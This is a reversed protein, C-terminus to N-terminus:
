TTKYAVDACSGPVSGEWRQVRKSLTASTRGCLRRLSVTRSGLHEGEPPLSALRDSAEMGERAMSFFALSGKPFVKEKLAPTSSDVFKYCRCKLPWTRPWGPSCLM